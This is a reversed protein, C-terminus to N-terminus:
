ARWGSCLFIDAHMPTSAHAQTHTFGVPRGTHMMQLHACRYGLGKSAQKGRRSRDRACTYETAYRRRTCALMASQNQKTGPLPPASSLTCIADSPPYHTLVQLETSDKAEHRGRTGSMQTHAGTRRDTNRRRTDEKYNHTMRMISKPIPESPKAGSVSGM